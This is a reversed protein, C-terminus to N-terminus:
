DWPMRRRLLQPRREINSLSRLLPLHHGDAGSM